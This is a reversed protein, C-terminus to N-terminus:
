GARTKARDVAVSPQAGLLNMLPTSLWHLVYGLVVFYLVQQQWDSIGPLVPMNFLLPKHVVALLGGVVAGSWFTLNRFSGILKRLWFFHFLGSGAGAAGSCLAAILGVLQVTGAAGFKSDVNGLLYVSILAYTVALTTATVVVTVVHLATAIAPKM